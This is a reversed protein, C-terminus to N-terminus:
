TEIPHTPNVTIIHTCSVLHTWCTDGEHKTDLVFYALVKVQLVATTQYCVVAQNAISGLCQQQSVHSQIFNVM